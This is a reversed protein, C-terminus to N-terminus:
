VGKRRWRKRVKFSYLYPASELEQRLDAYEAPTALSTDHLVGVYDAAAHQGVHMFSSCRGYREEIDPFLAIIDGTDKWKRFIVTTQESM